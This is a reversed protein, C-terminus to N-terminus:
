AACSLLLLSNNQVGRAFPEQRCNSVDAEDPDNQHLSAELGHRCRPARPAGCRSLESCREVRGDPSPHKNLFRHRPARLGSCPLIRAVPM